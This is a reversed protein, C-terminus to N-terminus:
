PALDGTKMAVAHFKRLTFLFSHLVIHAHGSSSLKLRQAYIIDPLDRMSMNYINDIAVRVCVCKYMHMCAYMFPYMRVYM